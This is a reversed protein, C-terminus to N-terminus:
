PDLFQFKSFTTGVQTKLFTLSLSGSLAQPMKQGWVTEGTTFTGQVRKHDCINLRFNCTNMKHRVEACLCSSAADQGKRGLLMKVNISYKGYLVSSRFHRFYSARGLVSCNNM